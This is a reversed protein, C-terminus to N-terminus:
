NRIFSPAQLIQNGFPSLSAELTCLDFVFLERMWERIIFETEQPALSIYFEIIPHDFIEDYHKKQHFLVLAITVIAIKLAQFNVKKNEVNYVELIPRLNFNSLQKFQNKSPRGKKLDPNVLRIIDTIGRGRDEKNLSSTYSDLGLFTSLLRMRQIKEHIAKLTYHSNIFWLIQAAIKLKIHRETPISIVSYDINGGLKEQISNPLYLSEEIMTKLENMANYISNLHYEDTEPSLALIQQFVNSLPIVKGHCHFELTSKKVHSKRQIKPKLNKQIVKKEIKIKKEIYYRFDKKNLDKAPRDLWDKSPEINESFYVELLIDEFNRTTKDM